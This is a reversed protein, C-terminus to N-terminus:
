ITKRSFYPPAAVASSTAGMFGWQCPVKTRALYFHQTEFPPPWLLLGGLDGNDTAGM